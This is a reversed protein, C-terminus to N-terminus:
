RNNALGFWYAGVYHATATEATYLLAAVIMLYDDPNLKLFGATHCRSGIRLGVTVLAIGLYTWSEAVFNTAM